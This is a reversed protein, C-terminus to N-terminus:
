SLIFYLRLYKDCDIKKFGFKLLWDETLTIPELQQEKLNALDYIDVKIVSHTVETRVYNGIRLEKSEM